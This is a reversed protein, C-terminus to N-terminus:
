HPATGFFRDGADGLGPLIYGQENLREDLAATFVRVREDSALAVQVGLPAAVLAIVDLPGAYVRRVHEVAVLVSGGTALMPDLVFVRQATLPASITDVYPHHKLTEEDRRIGLHFLPATPFLARFPAAFVEGARLISVGAPPSTVTRLQLQSGDFGPVSVTETALTRSAEWLAFTALQRAARGFSASDSRGDRITTLLSDVLPHDLVTLRDATLVEDREPQSRGVMPGANEAQM